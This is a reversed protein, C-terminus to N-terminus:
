SSKRTLQQIAHRVEDVERQLQAIRKMQADLEHHVNEIQGEVVALVEMRADASAKAARSPGPGGRAPRAGIKEGDVATGPKGRPGPPDPVGPPGIIKAMYWNQCSRCALRKNVIISYM